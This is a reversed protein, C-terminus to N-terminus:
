APETGLIKNWRDLSWGHAAVSWLIQREAAVFIVSAMCESRDAEGRLCRMYRNLEPSPAFWEGRVRSAAFLAHLHREIEPAKASSVTARLRLERPNGVQLRFLRGKSGAAYGIKVMGSEVEEIFYVEPQRYVKQGNELTARAGQDAM